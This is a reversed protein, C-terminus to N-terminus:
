RMRVVVSVRELDVEPRGLVLDLRRHLFQEVDAHFFHPRLHPGALFAAETEADPLQRAPLLRDDFQMRVVLNFEELLNLPPECSRATRRVAALCLLNSIAMPM